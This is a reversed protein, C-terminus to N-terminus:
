GAYNVGDTCLATLDQLIDAIHILFAVVKFRMVRIRENEQMRATSQVESAAPRAASLRAWTWVGSPSQSRTSNSVSLGTVTALKLCYTAV